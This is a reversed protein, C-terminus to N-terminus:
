RPSARPVPAAAGLRVRLPNWYVLGGSILAGVAISAGLVTGEAALSRDVDAGPTTAHVTDVFWAELPGSDLARFVGM